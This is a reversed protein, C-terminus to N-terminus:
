ITNEECSSIEIISSYENGSDERGSERGESGSNFSKKNLSEIRNSTNRVLSSLNERGRIVFPVYKFRQYGIVVIAVLAILLLLVLISTYSSRLENLDSRILHLENQDSELPSSLPSDDDSLVRRILNIDVVTECAIMHTQDCPSAFWKHCPTCDSYRCQRMSCCSSTNRSMGNCQDYYSDEKPVEVTIDTSDLWVFKSPDEDSRKVGFWIGSFTCNRFSSIFKNEEESRVHVMKMGLQECFNKAEEFKVATNNFYYIKGDRFYINSSIKQNGATTSSLKESPDRRWLPRYRRQPRELSLASNPGRRWQGESGNLTFLIVLIVCPISHIM